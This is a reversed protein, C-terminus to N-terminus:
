GFGSSSVGDKSSRSPSYAAMAGRPGLPDWPSCLPDGRNPAARSPPVSPAPCVPAGSRRYTATYRLRSRRVYVTTGLGASSLRVAVRGGYRYRKYRWSVKCVRKTASVRHCTAKFKRAQTYASTYTLRLVRRAQRLAQRNSVSRQAPPAPSFVTEGRVVVTERDGSPTTGAAAIDVRVTASRSSVAGTKSIQTVYYYHTGPGPSDTVTPSSSNGPLRTWIGATPDPQTGRRIAFYSFHPDTSANWTLTAIQNTVSASVGSPAPPIATSTGPCRVTGSPGLCFGMAQDVTNSSAHTAKINTVCSYGRRALASSTLVYTWPGDYTGFVDGVIEASRGVVTATAFKQAAPTDDPTAFATRVSGASAIDCTGDGRAVGIDAHLRFWHYGSYGPLYRQPDWHTITGKLTGRDDDYVMEFSKLDRPHEEAAILPVDGSPDEVSGAVVAAQATVPILMTGALAAAVVAFRRAFANDM